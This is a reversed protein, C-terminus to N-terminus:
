QNKGECTATPDVLIQQICRLLETPEYKGKLFVCQVGFHRARDVHVGDAVGTFLVVPVNQWRLYSRIVQLFELGNMEPMMVDLIIVDPVSTALALLAERGNQVGRVEYGAKELMRSLTTRSGHDDDVVLVNGM